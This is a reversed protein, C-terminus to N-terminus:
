GTTRIVGSFYRAAIGLADALVDIEERTNYIYFSARATASVELQRMLPQVCHNGARIAIGQQDLLTALDHPHIGAFNFAVAGGRIEVDKPGYLTMGELTSLTDLAYRTLDKEHRRVNEMGLAQLYDVAAGLAIADGISPTGAEFKMPLENWTAHDSWVQSVMEGGFMFPEMREQLETRAYLAGIGTPGLMKHGSFALFDCGLEAVDVPMHPVSQAGDILVIAGVAHAAKAIQAVPNITGLVNSVHVCAVIKTRRTILSDLEELALTGDEKVGIFRLTAGKERAVQQWPVLNSHHEMGTLLIEDGPGVNSRGWSYAVLNIAETANRTFIINTPSEARVFAAIKRRAEEYAETAEEGLRHVSRHVNANLTEYYRVLAKIVARPKQSTAASDLYVLPKGHVTRSLIPFDKRIDQFDLKM